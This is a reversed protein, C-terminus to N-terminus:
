IKVIMFSATIFRATCVHKQIRTKVNNPYIGLLPVGLNYPLEIRSKKLLTWVIKSLPQVLLGSFAIAGWELVRAQFIGHISSGPLSRDMLHSLTPCSQAVEVEWKWASSFFIAVWELIRAQLIGPVSSGLPSSDIPDCLQVRSFRSLLPLLLVLLRKNRPLFAIVFRSLM